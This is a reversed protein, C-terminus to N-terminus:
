KFLCFLHSQLHSWIYFYMYIAPLRIPDLLAADPPLSPREEGAGGVRTLCHGLPYCWRGRGRGLSWTGGGGGKIDFM